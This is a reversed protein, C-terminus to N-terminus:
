PVVFASVTVLVAEKAGQSVTSNPQSFEGTVALFAGDTTGVASILEDDVLDDLLFKQTTVSALRAAVVSLTIIAITQSNGTISLPVFLVSNVTRASTLQFDTLDAIDKGVTVYDVTVSEQADTGDEHVTGLTIERVGDARLTNTVITAAKVPDPSILNVNFIPPGNPDLTFKQTFLNQTM